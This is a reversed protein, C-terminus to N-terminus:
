LAQVAGLFVLRLSNGSNNITGVVTCIEFCISEPKGKTLVVTGARRRGAGKVNTVAM